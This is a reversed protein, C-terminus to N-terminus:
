AGKEIECLANKVYIKYLLECFLYDVIIISLLYVLNRNAISLASVGILEILWIFYRNGLIKCHSFGHIEKIAYRKRNVIIDVYNSIYLIFILSIVFVVTFMFMTNLIFTVNELKMLFPTLLTGATVLNSLGYELLLSSFQDRSDLSFFISRTNLSDLYYLGAFSGDDVIIINGTADSFGKASNIKITSSDEIYVINFQDLDKTSEKIGFFQNYNMLRYYEQKLYERIADEDAKYEAPMLVTPSEFVGIDIEIGDVIIESFEHLYNKNAIVTCKAFYPIAAANNSQAMNLASADCLLSHNNSYLEIMASSYDVLRDTNNLAYEYEISNFGNATYYGDLYKYDLVEQQSQKYQVSQNILLILTFAIVISFVVKISQVIINTSRNLTKNKIMAELSIFQLLFCTMLICFLNIGLVMSFYLISMGLYSSSFRNSILYYFNQLLAYVAFIVVYYKCVNTMQEKLIRLSSFGMSKKVGIKKLSYSTYICYIIQIVILLIVFNLLNLEFIMSYPIADNEFHTIRVSLETAIKEMDAFDIDTYFIGVGDLFEIRSLNDYEFVINHSIPQKQEFDELPYCYFKYISKDTSSLTNRIVELKNESYREMFISYFQDLTEPSSDELTYGVLNNSSINNKEYINYISSNFIYGFLLVELLLFVKLFNKM